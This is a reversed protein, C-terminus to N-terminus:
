SALTFFITNATTFKESSKETLNQARFRGLNEGRFRGLNQGFWFFSSFFSQARFRGFNKIRCPQPPDPSAKGVWGFVPPTLAGWGFGFKEFIRIKTRFQM